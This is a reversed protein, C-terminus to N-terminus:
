YFRESDSLLSQDFNMLSQIGRDFQLPVKPMISLLIAFTLTDWIKTKGEDKELPGNIDSEYDFRAGNLTARVSSIFTQNNYIDGDFNDPFKLRPDKSAM